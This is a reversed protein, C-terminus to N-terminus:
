IEISMGCSLYGLSSMQNKMFEYQEIGTCHCTYYDTDYRDLIKSANLLEDGLEMKSFHFGGVLVKPAFWEEINLIGKHSCGSILVRKEGDNILLYQEHEFSDPIFGESTKQTLGFSDFSYKRIRENCSFISLEDDIVYVDDVFVIRQNNKLEINIGIYKQTGNYYPLFANRNIFVPAKRNIELFKSLGGGHDYHGHSLVAIDVNELDIGLMTTNKFFMDTQGMDFLINHKKTQIHLSLGHEVLMDSRSATNELLSTIRM